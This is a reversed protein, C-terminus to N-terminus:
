TTSTLCRRRGSESLAISLRRYMSKMGYRRFILSFHDSASTWIFSQQSECIESVSLIEIAEIGSYDIDEPMNTTVGNLLGVVSGATVKAGLKVKESGSDDIRLRDEGAGGRILFSKYLNDLGDMGNGLYIEDNDGGTFISIM